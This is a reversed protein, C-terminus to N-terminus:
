RPPSRHAREHAAYGLKHKRRMQKANHREGEQCALVRRPEWDERQDLERGTEGCARERNREAEAFVRRRRRQKRQASQAAPTIAAQGSGAGIMPSSAKTVPAARGSLAGGCSIVIARATVACAPKASAASPAKATTM